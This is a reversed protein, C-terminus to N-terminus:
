ISNLIDIDISSLADILKEFRRGPIKKVFERYESLKRIIINKMIGIRLNEKRSRWITMIYIYIFANCINKQYNNSYVNDFYIFKIDSSPKFRCIRLLCKLVWLFLPKTYQCELFM